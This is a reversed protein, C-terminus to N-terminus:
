LCVDHFNIFELRFIRNKTQSSNQKKRKWDKWKGREKGLRIFCVSDRNDFEGIAYSHLDM